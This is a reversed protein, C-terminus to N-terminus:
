RVREPIRRRELAGAAVFLRAHHRAQTSRVGAQVGAQVARDARAGRGARGCAPRDDRRHGRRRFRSRACRDHDGYRDRVHCRRGGAVPRQRQATVELRDSGAVARTSQEERAQRRGLRLDFDREEDCKQVRLEHAGPAVDYRNALQPSRRGVAAMTRCLQRTPLLLQSPLAAGFGVLTPDRAAQMFRMVLDSTSVRTARLAPESKEPEAPAQWLRAKVYYGSQPRAEILGKNELVRYAQMVTAISVEEQESLKRVSPVREGPRLTGHEILESIRLAVQDYLKGETGQQEALHSALDQTAM